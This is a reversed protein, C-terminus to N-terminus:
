LTFPISLTIFSKENAPILACPLASLTVSVYVRLIAFSDASMAGAFDPSKRAFKADLGRLISGAAHSYPPVNGYVRRCSYSCAERLPNIRFATHFLRLGYRSARLRSTVFFHRKHVLVSKISRDYLM